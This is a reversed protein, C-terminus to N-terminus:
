CLRGAMQLFLSIMKEYFGKWPKWEAEFDFSSNHWIIHAYSGHAIAQSLLQGLDELAVEPSLKLYQQLSRDMAIVPMMILTGIREEEIDYFPYPHATGNRFGTDDAYLQSYDRRIGQRELHRFTEPIEYRLYHQRSDEIRAGIVQQLRIIEKSLLREDVMTQYSPHIAIRTQSALRRLMKQYAKSLPDHTSDITLMSRDLIFFILRSRISEDSLLFEYTDFPDKSFGLHVSVREAFESFHGNLLAKLSGGLIKYWPKYAYKWPQDVDIGVTWQFDNKKKFRLKFKTQVAAIFDECWLDALPRKYDRSAYWVSASAPFRGHGDRQLNQLAECGTLLWFVSTFFDYGFSGEIEDAFVVPINRVIKRAPLGVSPLKTLIAQDKIWLASGISKQGSYEVVPGDIDGAAASIKVLEFSLDEYHIAVFNLVYQLRPTIESCFIRICTM